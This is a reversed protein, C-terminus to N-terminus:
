LCMLDLNLRNLYKESKGSTGLKQFCWLYPKVCTCRHTPNPSVMDMSTYVAGVPTTNNSHLQGAKLCELLSPVNPFQFKFNTHILSYPVIPIPRVPKRRQFNGGEKRIITWGCYPQEQGPRLSHTLGLWALIIAEHSSQGPRPNQFALALGNLWPKKSPNSSYNMRSHHIYANFNKTPFYPSIYHAKM